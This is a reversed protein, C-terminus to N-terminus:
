LFKDKNQLRNRISRRANAMHNRVTQESLYMIVAIERVTKGMLKYKLIKRQQIPLNEIETNIFVILEAYTAEEKNVDVDNADAEPPILQRKKEESRWYDFCRRKIVTFLFGYIHELSKMQSVRQWLEAMAVAVIDEASAQDKILRYALFTMRPIYAKYVMEFVIPDGDRFRDISFSDLATDM